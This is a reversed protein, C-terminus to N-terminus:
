EKFTITSYIEENKKFTADDVEVAYPYDKLKVLSAFPHGNWLYLSNMRNEALSDLYRSWLAKDYFWPFNEPTYPYEYTGRGPLLAPKQIGVCAGRLVMEPQDTFNINVPLKHQANIRDALELCGYLAGSDDNGTITINKIAGTISFGEKRDGNKNKGKVNIAINPVGNTTKGTSRTVTYGAIKLAGTLKQVGYDIRAHYNPYTVINVKRVPPVSATAILAFCFIFLVACLSTRKRM